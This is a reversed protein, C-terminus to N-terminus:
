AGVVLPIRKREQKRKWEAQWTPCTEYASCCFKAVSNPNDKAGITEREVACRVAPGQPTEAIAGGAPCRVDLEPAAPLVAM